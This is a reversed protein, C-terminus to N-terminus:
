HFEIKNLILKNNLRIKNLNAYKTNESGFTASGYHHIFSDHCLMLRYGGQRLRLCFDDDEFNGPSYIEDLLGIKKLAVNKILMCFGVLRLREEWRSSDSINNKQAFAALEALGSYPYVMVQFNSCSNTVSGVAGIEQGSYLCSHLNTLWNTTVVTDNNLLLIDNQPNAETIGQNCGKPFGANESNLICKIDSQQLLWDCTGDTSNNDVVILEYSEPETNLRISEICGRTYWINNYSLIIISTKYSENAQETKIAV